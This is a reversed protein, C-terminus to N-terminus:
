QQRCSDCTCCLRFAIILFAIVSVQEAVHVITSPSPRGVCETAVTKVVVIQQIAVRYEAIGLMGTYLSGGAIGVDEAFMIAAAIQHQTGVHIHASEAVQLFLGLPIVIADTQQTAVIQQM